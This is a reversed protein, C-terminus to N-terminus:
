GREGKGNRWRGDRREGETGEGEMEEREKEREREGGGERKVEGEGEREVGFFALRTMLRRRAKVGADPPTLASGGGRTLRSMGERRRRLPTLRRGIMLRLEFHSSVRRQDQSLPLSVRLFPSPAPPPM